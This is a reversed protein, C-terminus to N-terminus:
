GASPVMPGSPCYLLASMGSCVWYSVWDRALNEKEMNQCAIRNASSCCTGMRSSKQHLKSRLGIGHLLVVWGIIQSHGPRGTPQAQTFFLPLPRLLAVELPLSFHGLKGPKTQAFGGCSDPSHSCGHFYRPLSGSYLKDLPHGGKNKRWPLAWPHCGSGAASLPGVAPCM